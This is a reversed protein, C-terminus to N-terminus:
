PMHERARAALEEATLNEQYTAITRTNGAPDKVSANRDGHFM